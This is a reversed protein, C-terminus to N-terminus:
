SIKKKTINIKIVIPKKETKLGKITSIKRAMIRAM